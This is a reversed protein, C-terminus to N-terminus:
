PVPTSCAPPPALASGGTQNAEHVFTKEDAEQQKTNGGYAVHALGNCDVAVFWGGRAVTDIAKRRSRGSSAALERRRPAPALPILTAM